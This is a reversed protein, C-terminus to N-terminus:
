HTDRIGLSHAKKHRKEQLKLAKVQYSKDDTPFLYRTLSRSTVILPIILGSLLAFSFTNQTLIFTITTLAVTLFVSILLTTLLFWRMHWTATELIADKRSLTSSLEIQELYEPSIEGRVYQKSAEWLEHEREAASM